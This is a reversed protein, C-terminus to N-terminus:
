YPVFDLWQIGESNEPPLRFASQEQFAQYPLPMDSFTEAFQHETEFECRCLFQAVRDAWVGSVKGPTGRFYKLLLKKHDQRSYIYTIPTFEKLDPGRLALLPENSVEGERSHDHVSIWEQRAPSSLNM